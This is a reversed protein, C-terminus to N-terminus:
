TKELIIEKKNMSSNYERIQFYGIFSPMERERDQKKGGL